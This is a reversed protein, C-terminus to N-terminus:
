RQARSRRSMVAQLLVRDSKILAFTKILLTYIALGAVIAAAVLFGNEEPLTKRAILLGIGVFTGILLPWLYAQLPIRIQLYQKLMFLRGISLSTLAILFGIAAGKVGWIHALVAIVVIEINLAMVLLFPPVKPEDYVLATETTIFTGDILEALLIITLIASGIIFEHGFIGLLSDGYVMMPITLGLQIIFVWRCIGILNDRIKGAERRNHLQALVPSMMPEFLSVVKQPITVIQQVMYYLGSGAPGVFISLVVLDIRRLAMIGVDTIGVPVSHKMIPLWKQPSAKSSLLSKLSYTHVLGFGACVAGIVVSGIYAYILGDTKMGLTLFVVALALFGWPEFIARTLVDWRIIRKFKIAALAVDIFTYAPVVFFLFLLLYVRDDFIWPWVLLLLGSIVLSILIAASIAEVVRKVYRRGKEADASLMDLLSRKLGLVSLAAGIECIAAVQGLEGLAVIGYARGALIMLILRAILRGGFGFLSAIAGRIVDRADSIDIM